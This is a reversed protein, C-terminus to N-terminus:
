WASVKDALIPSLEFIGQPSEVSQLTFQGSLYFDHHQWAVVRIGYSLSHPMEKRESLKLAYPHSTAEICPFSRNYASKHWKSICGVIVLLSSMIKHTVLQLHHHHHGGGEETQRTFILYKETM